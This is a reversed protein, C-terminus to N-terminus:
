VSVVGFQKEVVYGCEEMQKFLAELVAYIEASQLHTKDGVLFVHVDAGLEMASWGARKRVGRRKMMGRVLEADEWKGVSSYMNSMLIYYGDNGPDLEFARRSIREGMEVNGHIKCAGLLAGWVGGDPPVPMTLIMAEAEDLNGSRGLLDVMCSYHKLSPMISYYKMRRFLHRGEKVLGVHSCASLTALFTVANPSVGSEEMQRFIEVADKANGHIGYGSIMANWSIVDREPMADFIERAMRVQGCKAYMDVLATSLSVDCEYGMEEIYNHIREGHNLAALHSCASLLSVLTALSPKVNELLMQDFLSLAESARGSHAYAAILTNWTVIDRHMRHFIRRAVDLKGCRGYLGMLSNLISVDEDVSTKIVYCHLSRGLRLHSCSSIVSVLSNSDAELGILQMERFVEICKGEFGTKGYGSIMCNWSGMDWNSMRNFIKEAVDLCEFKCYMSLLSNGVSADFELCNKIILGHFAKGEKVGAFNALGMVLCSIVIGDLDVGSDQMESFLKFCKSLLGNRAYVGVLATWSLLDKSPLEFFAIFSEDVCGCKSYMTLLSSQVSYCSLIGTKLGLGHLCRGESLADSNGCAQFVGELTRFNPRTEVGEGNRHMECLCNLGMESDGNQVYSVILATWAVVDRIPMEVFVQHADRLQGCKGYLYVLSSGVASNGAVLSTKLSVGHITQGLQASPLEACAAVVMPITFHNPPCGSHQMRTYLSLSHHYQANSFYAQIISNWLFTDKLPIEDFVQLAIHNKNFSSYLSVLKAALFINTSHGSTLIRSHSQLLSQLTSISNSLFLDQIPHNPRKSPPSEFNTATATTSSRSLHFLRPLSSSFLRQSTLKRRRGIGM